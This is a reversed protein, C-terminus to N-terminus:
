HSLATISDRLQRALELAAVGYLDSYESIVSPSSLIPREVKSTVNEPQVRPTKVSLEIFADLHFGPPFMVKPKMESM